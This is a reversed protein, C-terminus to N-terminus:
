CPPPAPAVAGAAIGVAVLASDRVTWRDPRYRTVRLRRGAARLGVAVGFAGVAICSAGVARASASGGALLWFGGFTALMAAAVLGLTGASSPRAASRTRGFGRAEMGAALALSRDIADALVPIAM